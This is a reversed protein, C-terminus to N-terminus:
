KVGGGTDRGEADGSVDKQKEGLASRIAEAVKEALVAYGPETFHVNNPQQIETLKPKSWAGLENVMVNHKQMIEVAAANYRDVDEPSRIAGTVEAPFSTTTAFVLTAGTRKLRLVIAELNERYKELPIQMHGEAKSEVNKGADDVYKLDHLGFNFHIADWSTDGLWADLHELGWGTHRANGPNHAIEVEGALLTQLPPTYGNSISDGIILVKPLADDGSACFAVCVIYVVLWFRM